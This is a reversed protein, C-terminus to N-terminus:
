SIITEDDNESQENQKDIIYLKLSDIFDYTAETLEENTKYTYVQTFYNVITENNSADSLYKRLDNTSCNSKSLREIIGNFAEELVTQESTSKRSTTEDSEVTNNNANELQLLLKVLETNQNDKTAFFPAIINDFLNTVKDGFGFSEDAYAFVEDGITSQDLKFTKFALSQVLEGPKKIYFSRNLNRENNVFKRLAPLTRDWSAFYYEEQCDEDLYREAMFLAVRIDSNVAMETKHRSKLRLYEWYNTQIVDFNKYQPHKQITKYGWARLITSLVKMTDLRFSYSDPDLNSFGFSKLYTSFDLKVDDYVATERCIHNFHNYFINSTKLPIPLDINDLWTLRIAKKLEGVTEDLYDAPVLFEMRRENEKVYGCLDRVRIYDADDWESYPAQSYSSNVCLSNIFVMTDMVIINKKSNIYDEYRNSKYLELFKKSRCIRKLYTSHSILSIISGYFENQKEPLVFSKVRKINETPIGKEFNSVENKSSEDLVFMYLKRMEEILSAPASVNYDKVLQDYDEYFKQASAMSKQLSFYIRDREKPALQILDVQKKLPAIYGLKRLYKITEDLNEINQNYQDVLLNYLEDISIGDKSNYISLLIISYFLSNKLYTSDDSSALYDYLAKEVLSYSEDKDANGDCFAKQFLENDSMMSKDYIEVSIDYKESAMRKIDAETERDIFAISFIDVSFETKYKSILVDIKSLLKEIDVKPMISTSLAALRQTRKGKLLMIYPATNLEQVFSKNLVTFEYEKIASVLIDKKLTNAAM